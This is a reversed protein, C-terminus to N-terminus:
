ESAKRTSLIDEMNQKFDLGELRLLVSSIKNGIRFLTLLLLDGRVNSSNNGQGSGFESSLV